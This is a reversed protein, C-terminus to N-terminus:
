SNRCKRIAENYDKESLHVKTFVMQCNREDTGVFDKMHCKVPVYVGM